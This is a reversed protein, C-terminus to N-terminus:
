RASARAGPSAFAEAVIREIQELEESSLAYAVEKATKRREPMKNDNQRIWQILLNITRNPLDFQRDIREYALDHAHLYRAEDVLSQQLAIGACRTVFAAAENGSWHAYVKPTSCFDFAFDGDGIFTVDWLARVPRSFRELTSLYQREERKMAVSLPLIAPSGKVEPLVGKTHLCHHALLRSVRGNGDLFPHLFVFGFSVLAAKILPPVDDRSNAMRMLGDILPRMHEPSPPIYRVALAGHGGRQLWNQAGRFGAEARLPSSIVANQLGVLYEETLPTRDRLHAMAQLFASEKEPTPMENEIAFSDRTESLYAWAMVRDMLFENEPAAAWEHLSRLIADGEQELAPERRVVPCFECPGIGNFNIRYKQNREWTQGTYYTGPDFFDVYNGMQGAWPLEIGHAKEWLYAARRVYGGAPADALADLIDRASVLRLAEHLIALQMPEHKLAFLLHPLIADAAPAISKPIAILDAAEEVRTVPRIRAPKSLPPMRLPIKSLLFEYGVM